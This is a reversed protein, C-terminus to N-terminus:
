SLSVFEILHYKIICQYLLAVLDSNKRIAQKFINCTFLKERVKSKIEMVLCSFPRATAGHLRNNREKWVTHVTGALYLFAVITKIYLVRGPFFNENMFDSRQSSLPIPCHSLIPATYAWSCFIHDVSEIDIGCLVCTPDVNLGFNLLRDKTMLRNKFALWLLFSFKHVAGPHWIAKLWPPPFVMRELLKGFIELKLIRKGQGLLKM